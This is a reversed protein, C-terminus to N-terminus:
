FTHYVFIIHKLNLTINSLIKSLESHKFCISSDTELTVSKNKRLSIKTQKHQSM